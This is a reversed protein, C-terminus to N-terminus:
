SVNCSTYATSYTVDFWMIFSYAVNIVYNATSVCLMYNTQLLWIHCRVQNTGHVVVVDDYIIDCKCGGIEYGVFSM